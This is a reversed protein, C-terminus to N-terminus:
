QRARAFSGSSIACPSNSWARCKAASINAATLRPGSSKAKFYRGHKGMSGTQHFGLVIDSHDAAGAM